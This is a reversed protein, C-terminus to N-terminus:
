RLTPVMCHKDAAAINHTQFALGSINLKPTVLDAALLAAAANQPAFALGSINLRPVASSAAAYAFPGAVSSSDFQPMQATDTSGAAVGGVPAEWEEVDSFEFGEYESGLGISSSSEFGSGAEANDAAICTDLAGWEYGKVSFVSGARSLGINSRGAPISDANGEQQQTDDGIFAKDDAAASLDDYMNNGFDGQQPQQKDDISAAAAAASASLSAASSSNSWSSSDSLRRLQQEDDSTV